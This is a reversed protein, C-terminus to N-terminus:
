IESWPNFTVWMVDYAAGSVSIPWGMRHLGSFEDGGWWMANVYKWSNTKRSIRYCLEGFESVFWFFFFNGTFFVLFLFLQIAPYRTIKPLLFSATEGTAIRWSFGGTFWVLLFKMGLGLIRRIFSFVVLFVLFLFLEAIVIEEPAPLSLFTAVLVGLEAFLYRVFFFFVLSLSDSFVKFFLYLVLSSLSPPSLFPFSFFFLSSLSSPPPTRPNSLSVLLYIPIIPLSNPLLVLFCLM